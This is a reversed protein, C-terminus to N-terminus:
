ETPMRHWKCAKTVSAADLLFNLTVIQHRDTGDANDGPADHSVALTCKPEVNLLASKNTSCKNIDFEYTATLQRAMFELIM